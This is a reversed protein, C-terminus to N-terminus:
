VDFDMQVRGKLTAGDALSLRPTTIDGIVSANPAIVLGESASINGEVQGMIDVAHATIEAELKASESITLNSELSIHGDLKGKVVLDESGSIKGRITTGEGIM